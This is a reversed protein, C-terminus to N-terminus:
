VYDIPPGTPTLMLVVHAGRTFRIARLRSRGRPDHTRGRVARFENSAGYKETAITQGDRSLVVSSTPPLSGDRRSRWSSWARGCPRPMPRGSRLMDVFAKRYVYPAAVTVLLDEDVITM